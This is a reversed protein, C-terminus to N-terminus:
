KLYGEKSLYYVILNYVWKKCQRQYKNNQEWSQVSRLSVGITKAFETQTMGCMVRLKKIDM